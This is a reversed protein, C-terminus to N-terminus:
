DVYVFESSAFLVRALSAWAQRGRDPEGVGEAELQASYDKSGPKKAPLQGTKYDIIRVSGDQLVDIRDAIGSLTFIEGAASFELEGRVEPLTRAHEGDVIASLVYTIPTTAVEAYITKQFVQLGHEERGGIDEYGKYEADQQAAFRDQMATQVIEAYQEATLNVGLDESVVLSFANPRFRIAAFSAEPVNESFDVYTYADGSLDLRYNLVDHEFVEVRQGVNETYRLDDQANAGCAIVLLALLIPRFERM